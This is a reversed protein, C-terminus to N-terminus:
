SSEVTTKLEDRNPEQSFLLELDGDEPTEDDEGADENLPPTHDGGDNADNDEKNPQFTLVVRCNSMEEQFLATRENDSKFVQLDVVSFRLPLDADNCYWSRGSSGNMNGDENDEDFNSAEETHIHCELSFAETSELPGSLGEKLLHALLGSYAMAATLVGLILGLALVQMRNMEFNKRTRVYFKM